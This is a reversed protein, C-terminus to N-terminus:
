GGEAAVGLAQALLAQADYPPRQEGVIRGGQLVLLREALLTLEPLDSSVVLVATGGEALARILGYIEVKAEVDVGRTPEDLLLVRCGALLWRGLLAKQQNGGSLARIAMEQAHPALRLQGGLARCASRERYQEVIGWRARGPLSVLAMNERVCREPLLSHRKRDEGLMGIGRAVADRPSRWVVPRGDLVIEGAEPRQAGFLTRVLRSRGAGAVGMLGVVEGARLELHVDKLRGCCLNHVTLVPRGTQSAAPAGTPELTRGVMHRVVEAMSLAGVAACHVRRGNRLVTVQDCLAFIEELRHSIYIIATGEARIRRLVAFLQESQQASLSATPEDLILLRAQQRLARATEVMQQEPLNLRGVPTRPDIPQGLRELVARASNEFKGYDVPRWWSHAEGLCINEAVSLAPVLALEQHIMAIGAARAARPSDFRVAAGQWRVTGADPALAGSLIKMLTSKGAGNEGVLAHVEGAEVTFDVGDLVTVPGFRRSIKELALLPM